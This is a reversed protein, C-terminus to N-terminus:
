LRGEGTSDPQVTRHGPLPIQPVGIANSWGEVSSSANDLADAFSLVWAVADDPRDGPSKALARAFAEDVAPPLGPLSESLLPFEGEIIDLMIQVFVDSSSLYRGTLAFHGVAALSYIDSRRDISNGMAQEPSM